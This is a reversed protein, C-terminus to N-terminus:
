DDGLGTLKVQRLDRATDPHLRVTPRRPLRMDVLVVHRAFLDRARDVELVRELADVADDQPLKIKQGDSLIMDWRREGIRVLGRLRADLPAAAAVLALAEGAARDAGRGSIVPLDARDARAAVAGVPKGARDLATLGDARRWLLAPVREVVDIDLVGGPRVRLDAREVADLALVRARLDALDLDFSSVPMEVDLRAAIEAGVGDSAGAIRMEHVLFEKRSRVAEQMAAAHAVLGARREPSALALAGIVAVAFAPMGLTFGRRVSPTLALRQMRYALRSPAPDSRTRPGPRRFPTLPRM